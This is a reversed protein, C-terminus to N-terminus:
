TLTLLETERIMRRLYRRELTRQSLGGDLRSIVGILCTLLLLVIGSLLFTGPNQLMWRVFSGEEAIRPNSNWPWRFFLSTAVVNLFIGLIVTGWVLSRKGWLWQCLRIWWPPLQKTEERSTNQM